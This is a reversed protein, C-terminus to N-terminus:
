ARDYLKFYFQNKYLKNDLLRRRITLTDAGYKKKVAMISNLKEIFLDREDYVAVSIQLGKKYNSYDLGHYKCARKLNASSYETNKVVETVCNKHAKFLNILEQKSLKTAKGKLEIWAKTANESWEKPRKKGKTALVAKKLRELNEEVRLKQDESKEEKLRQYVRSSVTFRRQYDTSLYVMCFLAYWLSRDKPYMMHLLYHAIYHEKATLHCLNTLENKGGKCKPIIHHKEYYVGDTLNRLKSRECLLDYHKKYNM